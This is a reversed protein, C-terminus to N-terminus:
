LDGGVVCVLKYQTQKGTEDVVEVLIVYTGIQAKDGEDTSGDWTILANNGVFFNDKLERTLRGRNDYIRIDVMNDTSMFSLSITLVDNYGDNDPSFLQPDLTVEGTIEPFYLQSNEYGPTGWQVNEAATHWNDRNNIGGEFSIRELSKGDPDSILQYHMDEDYSIYDLLSSDAALLYVSGSDNNYTPLDAQYFKGPGYIIFDNIIDNTDETVLIYEGPFILQQSSTIAKHNDIMEDDWNALMLGSLDVIKQSRNYIEVYDSGNTLPNFMIENIILDEQEPLEPLGITLQITGMSNGWCDELNSLTLTYITGSSLANLQITLSQLDSWASSSGIVPDISVVPILATDLSENFVLAILSDGSLQWNVLVPEETDGTSTWISNQMGPTGGTVNESAGWNSPGECPANLHRRELSWGGDDKVPDNMWGSSYFISDILNASNDKIVVADDTTNFAPFGVLGIGNSVGFTVLSDQTTILVYEGPLLYYTPITVPGSVADELTWGALDFYKSSRNYLEIYDVEPLGVKPTPDGFIETIIVDGASPIEPVFYTFGASNPTGIVNGATDEVGSATVTYSQGNAFSSPFTLHVLSADAGDLIATLPQGIGNDVSYNTITQATVPDMDESFYLDLATSSLAIASSLTPPVIDVFPSGTVVFDDFYFKDSRTSTYKCHVGFVGTSQYTNDFVTGESAFTSGGTNDILLEWNGVADRTVQVRVTVLAMDVTGDTGDIIKTTSLGDQRYLSVEDATNGVMVFYGNLSQKLDPNDAVLYIRALNSSSPNFDLSVYFEWTANNIAASPLSLYSTDSVAPALLHLQNLGDVEFNATQGTWSPATTFDGDTFDDTFQAFSLAKVVFLLFTLYFKM